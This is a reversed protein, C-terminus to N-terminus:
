DAASDPREWLYNPRLRTEALRALEQVQDDTLIVPAGEPLRGLDRASLLRVGAVVRDSRPLQAGHICLVPTVTVRLQNLLGSLAIQTATAERYVEALFKGRDHASVFLRDGAVEVKGSINKTEIVYVGSPGIAIHDINASSGPLRRDHLVVFGREFLPRIATATKREGRAGKEWLLAERPLAQIRRLALGAVIFAGAIAVFQGFQLMFLYTLVMGVIAYVLSLPLTARMKARHSEREREFRAQAYGGATSVLQEPPDINILGPCRTEAYRSCGWFDRGQRPGRGATRLKMPAACVPCAPTAGGM